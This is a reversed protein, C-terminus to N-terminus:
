SSNYLYIYFLDNTNKKKKNSILIIIIILLLIYIYINYYDDVWRLSAAEAGGQLILWAALYLACFVRGVKWFVMARHASPIIGM